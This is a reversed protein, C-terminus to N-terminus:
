RVCRVRLRPLGGPHAAGSRDQEEQVTAAPVAAAVVVAPAGAVDGRAAAAASASAAAAPAQEWDGDYAAEERPRQRRSRRGKRVGELIDRRPRERGGHRLRGRGSVAADAGEGVAEGRLRWGSSPWSVWQRGRGDAGEEERPPPLSLLRPGLGRLQQAGHEGGGGRHRQAERVVAAAAALLAPRHRPVAAPIRDAAAPHRLGAHPHLPVDHPHKAAAARGRAPLPGRRRRRRAPPPLAPV